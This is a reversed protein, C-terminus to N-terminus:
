QSRRARAVPPPEAARALLEPTQFVVKGMDEMEMVAARMLLDTSLPKGEIAALFTGRVAVNKIYGGTLEYQEALLEIDVNQAGPVNLPLHKRWLMVREPIEPEDLLLHLSLRRQLAPDLYSEKNTTLIAVGSYRELRQLLFNVLVNAYRDRADDVETRKAFLADAEDFLLVAHAREAQDFVRALAKETEGVWRSLVSSLDVQYMALGLQNAILGALLTKGTGPPGSFLAILGKGYSIKKDLGWVRYVQDEYKKRGIFEKVRETSEDNLIVDEWTTPVDLKLASEGLENRMRREVSNQLAEQTVPDPSCVMVAERACEFTEGPTLKYGHALQDLDVTKGLKAKDLARKWLVLRNPQMPVRLQHEDIPKRSKLRPAQMTDLGVIVPARCYELERILTKSDLLQKNVVPQGPQEEVAEVQMPGFFLVADLWDADRRAARLFELLNQKDVLTPNAVLLPRGAAAALRSAIERKGVGNPGWLSQWPLGSADGGRVSKWRQLKPELWEKVDDDIILDDLSDKARVLVANNRIGPSVDDGQTSLVWLLNLTPQLARHGMSTFVDGVNAAQVMRLNLLPKDGDFLGLMELRDERKLRLLQAMLAPDVGRRQPQPGRVVNFLEALPPDLSTAAILLSCQSELASLGLRDKLQAFAPARLPQLRKDLADIAHNLEDASYPTNKKARSARRAALIAELEVMSTHDPAARLRMEQLARLERETILWIWELEATLWEHPLV